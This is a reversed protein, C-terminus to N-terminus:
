LNKKKKKKMSFTQTQQLQYPAHLDKALLSVAFASFPENPPNTLHGATVDVQDVQVSWSSYRACLPVWQFLLWLYTIDYLNSASVRISVTAFCLCNCLMFVLIIIVLIINANKFRYSSKKHKTSQADKYLRTFLALRTCLKDQINIEIRWMNWAVIHGDDPSIVTDNCCRTNTVRSSRRTHLTPDQMGSPWGYLIVFVLHQMFVTIEGSSQCVTARFM